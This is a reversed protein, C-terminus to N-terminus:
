WSPHIWYDEWAGHDADQFMDIGGVVGNEGVTWVGSEILETWRDFLRELRQARHEGGFPRFVGHQFIQTFSGSPVLSGDSRRAGDEDALGLAFPLLLHFGTEESDYESRNITASYLGTPILDGENFPVDNRAGFFLRHIEENFRITRSDDASAFLLFSPVDRGQGEVNFMQRATFAEKDQPVELGPAILKFRPTRVRTLFSRIFCEKPVSATDLEADTFFRHM